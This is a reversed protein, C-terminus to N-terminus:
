WRWWSSRRHAVRKEGNLRPLTLLCDLGAEADVRSCLRPRGEHDDVLVEPGRSGDPQRVYARADTRRLWRILDGVSSEESGSSGGDFRVAVINELGDGGATRIASIYLTTYSALSVM